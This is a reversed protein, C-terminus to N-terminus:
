YSDSIASPEIATGCVTNRVAIQRSEHADSTVMEAKTHLSTLFPILGHGETYCAVDESGHGHVNRGGCKASLFVVPVAAFQPFGIDGSRPNGRKKPLEQFGRLLNPIIPPLM